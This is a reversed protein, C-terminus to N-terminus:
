SIATDSVMLSFSWVRRAFTALRTLDRCGLHRRSSGETEETKHNHTNEGPCPKRSLRASKGALTQAALRIVSSSSRSHLKGPEFHRRSKRMFNSLNRPKGSNKSLKGFQSSRCHPPSHHLCGDFCTLFYHTWRLWNVEIYRVIFSRHSGTTQKSKSSLQPFNRSSGMWRCRCGTNLHDDEVVHTVTHAHVGVSTPSASHFHRSAHPLSIVPPIIQNPGHPSPPLNSLVIFKM